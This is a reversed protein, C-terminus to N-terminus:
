GRKHSVSQMLVPSANRALVPGTSERVILEGPVKVNFECSAGSLLKLVIDTARRGMDAM